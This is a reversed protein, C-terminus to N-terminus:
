DMSVHPIEHSKEADLIKHPHSKGRGRVCHRCWSRYPLHTAEHELIEQKTPQKPNALLKPVVAEANEEEHHDAVDPNGSTSQDGTPPM